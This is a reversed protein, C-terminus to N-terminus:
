APGKPQELLSQGGHSCNGSYDPGSEGVSTRRGESSASTCPALGPRRSESVDPNCPGERSGQRECSTGQRMGPRLPRQQALTAVICPLSPRSRRGSAVDGAAGAVRPRRGAAAPHREDRAAGRSDAPGERLAERGLAIADHHVARLADGLALRQCRRQGPAGHIHLAVAARGRTALRQHALCHPAAAAQVDEDAVGAHALHNRM